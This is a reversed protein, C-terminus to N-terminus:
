CPSLSSRVSKEISDASTDKSIVLGAGQRPTAGPGTPPPSGCSGLWRKVGCCPHRRRGPRRRADSQRRIRHYSRGAMAEPHLDREVVVLGATPRDDDVIREPIYPSPGPPNKKQRQQWLHLYALASEVFANQTPKGPQIFHLEVRNRYAWADLARSIFEPGNDIVLVSPRGHELSATELVRAVRAGSLSTDVEIARCERTFDDVVNLTRFVRGDALQDSVFDLSWRENARSPLPRPVRAARTLRKRLRRRVMLGERRYLRHVRKHNVAFGERRLLVHLRRYGYRPRERALVLLREMLGSVQLRRTRYRLSSASIGILACSRRESIRFEIGVWRAAERRALCTVM